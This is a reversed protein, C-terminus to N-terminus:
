QAKWRLKEMDWCEDLDVTGEIGPIHGKDTYQWAMPDLKPHTLNMIKKRDSWGTLWDIFRGRMAQLWGQMGTETKESPYWAAWYPCWAAAPRVYDKWFSIGSYLVPPTGYERECCQVFAEVHRRYEKKDAIKGGDAELDLMPILDFDRGVVRKFHEFQQVGDANSRFFHYAGVALGQERAGKLNKRFCDDNLKLGETAKVYVFQVEGSAAVESWNIEGQHHSVDIGKAGPNSGRLYFLVGCLAVVVILGLIMMVKRLKHGKQKKKRPKKQGPIVIKNTNRKTQKAM